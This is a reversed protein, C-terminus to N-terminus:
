GASKLSEPKLVIAMTVDGNIHKKENEFSAKLILVRGESGSSVDRLRGVPCHGFSPLGGALKMQLPAALRALCANMMINTVEAIVDPKERDLETADSTSKLIAGVLKRAEGEKFILGAYGIPVNHDLVELLCCDEAGKEHDKEHTGSPHLHISVPTFGFMEDFNTLEGLQESAAALGDCFADSIERFNQIIGSKV